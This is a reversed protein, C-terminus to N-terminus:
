MLVLAVYGYLRGDPVKTRAVRVRGRDADLERLRADIRALWQKLHRIQEARGDTDDVPRPDPDTM